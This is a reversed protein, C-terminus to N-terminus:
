EVSFDKIAKITETTFKKSKLEKIKYDLIRNKENMFAVIKTKLKEIELDMQESTQEKKLNLLEDIYKFTMNDIEEITIPYIFTTKGRSM